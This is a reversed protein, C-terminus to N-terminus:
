REGGRRAARKRGSTPKAPAVDVAITSATEMLLPVLFAVLQPRMANMWAALVTKQAALCAEVVPSYDPEGKPISLDPRAADMFDGYCEAQKMTDIWEMVCKKAAAEAMCRRAHRGYATGIKELVADRKRPSM